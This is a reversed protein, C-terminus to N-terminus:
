HAEMGEMRKWSHHIAPKEKRRLFRSLKANHLM